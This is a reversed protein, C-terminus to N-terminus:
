YVSMIIVIIQHELPKKKQLFTLPRAREREREREREIPARTPTHTHTRAHMHTDTRAHAQTEPHTYTHIHTYALVTQAPRDIYRDTEGGGRARERGGSGGIQESGSSDWAARILLGNRPQDKGEPMNKM